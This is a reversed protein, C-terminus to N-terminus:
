CHPVVNRNPLHGPGGQNRGQQQKEQNREAIILQASSLFVTPLFYM